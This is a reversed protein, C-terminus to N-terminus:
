GEGEMRWGGGEGIVRVGLGPSYSSRLGLGLGLGM